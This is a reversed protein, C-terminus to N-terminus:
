SGNANERRLVDNEITKRAWENKIAEEAESDQVILETGINVRKWMACSEVLTTINKMIKEGKQKYLALAKHDFVLIALQEAIHDNIYFTRITGRKEYVTPNNGEYYSVLHKTAFIYLKNYNGQVYWISDGRLIGSKSWGKDPSDQTKENIEISIRNTDTCRQDLKIECRQINEGRKYQYLKSSYNCLPIGMEKFMVDVVFDQFRMGDEYSDKQKADPYKTEM